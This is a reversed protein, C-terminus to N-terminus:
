TKIRNMNIEGYTVFLDLLICAKTKLTSNDVFIFHTNWTYLSQMVNTKYIDEM